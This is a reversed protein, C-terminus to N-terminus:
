LFPDHGRDVESNSLVFFHGCGCSRASSSASFVVDSPVIVRQKFFCKRPVVSLTPDPHCSHWAVDSFFTVRRFDSCFKRFPVIFGRKVLFVFFDELEKGCLFPRKMAHVSSLLIM